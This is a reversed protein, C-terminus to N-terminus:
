VQKSMIMGSVQADTLTCGAAGKHGGGNYWQKLYEGCDFVDEDSFNYLGLTWNGNNADYKLVSGHKVDQDKVSGFSMSNMRETTFLVCVREGNRLRWECDGHSKVARDQRVKDLLRATHGYDQCETAVNIHETLKDQLFDSIWDAYWDVDLNSRLTFGTNLDFLEEVRLPDKYKEKWSHAWSDYDSLMEMHASPELVPTIGMVENTHQWTNLLASQKTDRVGPAKGFCCDESKEIIPRHHDCWHFNEGWKKYLWDMAETENFSIDCMWVEDCSLWKGISTKQRGCSVTVADTYEKWRNSLDAYNVGAMRFTVGDFGSAYRLYMAKVIAASCVGDNDERHYIVLVRKM